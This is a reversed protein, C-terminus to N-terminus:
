TIEEEQENLRAELEILRTYVAEWDRLEMAWLQLDDLDIQMAPKLGPPTTIAERRIKLFENKDIRYSGAKTTRTEVLFNWVIGDRKWRWFRGSNVQRRGEPMEGLRREQAESARNARARAWPTEM